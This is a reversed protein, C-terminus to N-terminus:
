FNIRKGGDSSLERIGDLLVRTARCDDENYEIIRERIEPDGTQAWRDFWEISAAGSPDTDRWQFGLYKALTKISHDRTPWETHKRVLDYLDVARTPDFLDDIEAETAVTPYRERLKRYITREYKSYFYLACPQRRRLYDIADAFAQEEAEPTPETAFFYVFRETDDDRGTRELFGHLYCLDRMPDFELDFFIERDPDPLAFPERIYPAGGAQILRARDHFRRLRDPGLKPFVTQKGQIYADPDARALAPIDRVKNVMTDRLTRGLEPILTLDRGAELKKLCSSYWHCSKCTSSYAPTTADHDRLIRRVEALAEQYEDWLRTPTRPGQAATLDYTAEEGHVDWIFGRRGASLGLRELVDVYLALQVGYHRKPKRNDDPGEEASGSKIDGPVYGGGERRLLDPIGLLSEAEIRGAYILPEGRQMAELTLRAHEDGSYGSLDLCPIELADIVAREYLAGMEWLLQTFPSVADREAAPAYLDMTVRHPCHVLDYLMAATIPAPDAM